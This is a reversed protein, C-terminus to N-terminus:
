VQLQDTELVIDIKALELNLQFPTSIAEDLEFSVVEFEVQGVLPQFTFRLDSQSPM